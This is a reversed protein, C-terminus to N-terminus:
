SRLLYDDDRIMNRLASTAIIVALPNLVINIYKLNSGVNAYIEYVDIATCILNAVIIIILNAM